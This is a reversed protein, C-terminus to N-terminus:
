SHDPWASGADIDQGIGRGAGAARAGGSGEGCGARGGGPGVGEGREACYVGEAVVREGGALAREAVAALM